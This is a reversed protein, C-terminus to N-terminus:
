LAAQDNDRVPGAPPDQVTAIGPAIARHAWQARALGFESPRVPNEVPRAIGDQRRVAEGAGIPLRPPAPQPKEVHGGAPELRDLRPKGSEAPPARTGVPPDTAEGPRGGAGAGDGRAAG